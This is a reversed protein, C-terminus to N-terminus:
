RSLAPATWTNGLCIVNRINALGLAAELVPLSFKVNEGTNTSRPEELIFDAPMGRAVMAQKIIECESRAAGPTIGGSVISWRFM